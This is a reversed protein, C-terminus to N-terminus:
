KESIIQKQREIRGKDWKYKGIMEQMTAITWTIHKLQNKRDLIPLSHIHLTERNVIVLIQESHMREKEEMKKSKETQEKLRKMEDAGENTVWNKFKLEELVYTLNELQLRRKEVEARQENLTGKAHNLLIQM